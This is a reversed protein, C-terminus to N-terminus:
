SSQHSRNIKKKKDIETNLIDQGLELDCFERERERKKKRSTQLKQNGNLDIIWKSNSETTTPPIFQLTRKAYPHGFTEKTSFVVRRM